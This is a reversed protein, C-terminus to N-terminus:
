GDNIILIEPSYRRVQHLVDEVHREENYVPIATLWKMM